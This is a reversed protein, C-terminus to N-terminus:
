EYKNAHHNEWMVQDGVWYQHPICKSNEIWTNKRILDQKQTKIATRDALYQTNLVM